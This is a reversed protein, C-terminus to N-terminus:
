DDAPAVGTPGSGSGTADRTAAVYAMILMAVILASGWLLTTPVLFALGLGEGLWVVGPVGWQGAIFLGTVATRLTGTVELAPVAFGMVIALISLVGLHAHGGIMWRPVADGGALIMAQHLGVAMMVALGVFGSVKLPKTM